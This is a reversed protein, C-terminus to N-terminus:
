KWIEKFALGLTETIDSAILSEESQNKLALDGALGHVYVGLCAADITNYGQALLGVIIGSLIDGSGATAMGSNGTNNFFLDGTPSSITTFTGKLVVILNNTIAFEKQLDLKEEDSSFDGCLRRFEGIHPTIIAEECLQLLKKNKSIINLADADLLLPIDKRKQLLIKLQNEAKKHTGMGPGIGIANYRSIVSIDNDIMVEPLNLNLAKIYEKEISVSAKGVGARLAAKTALILAGRMGLNGGVLLAHGFDGKHSSQPRIKLSPIEEKSLLYNQTKTKQLFDKDLDISILKVEGFYELNSEILFAFKVCEFTYTTTAKVVSGKNLENKDAFLGSPIDISLVKLSSTNIKDIVQLFSGSTERNLGYGFIADIIIEKEKFVIKNEHSIFSFLDTPLLSLNNKFDSSEKESFELISIRIKYNKEILYRAIVLGDGGNNGKGVIIHFSFNDSFDKIIEKACRRAAREMLELSSIKQKQITSNDWEGIQDSSLIKM